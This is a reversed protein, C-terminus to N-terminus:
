FTFWSLTSFHGAIGPLAAIVASDATEATPEVARGKLSEQLCNLFSAGLVSVSVNLFKNNIAHM